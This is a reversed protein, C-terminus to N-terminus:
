LPGLRRYATPTLGMHRGFARSFSPHDSFGVALAVDVIPRGSNRLLRAAQNLRLTRLYAGPTIGVVSSFQRLFHFKSLEAVGALSDLSVAEAPTAPDLNRMYGLARAIKRHGVRHTSRVRPTRLNSFEEFARSLVYHLATDIELASAQTKGATQPGSMGQPKPGRVLRLLRSMAEILAAHGAARVMTFEPQTTPAELDAALEQVLSRDIYLSIYEIDDGETNGTHVQQPNILVVDGACFHHLKGAVHCSETGSLQAAILYEDHFHPALPVRSNSGAAHFLSFGKGGYFAATRNLRAM